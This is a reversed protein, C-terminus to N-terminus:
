DLYVDIKVKGSMMKFVVNVTKKILFIDEKTCM